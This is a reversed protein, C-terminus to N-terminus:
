GRIKGPLGGLQGVDRAMRREKRTVLQELLSGGMFGLLGVAFVIVVLAPGLLDM